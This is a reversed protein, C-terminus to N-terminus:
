WNWWPKKSVSVAHQQVGCWEMDDMRQMVCVFTKTTPDYVPKCIPIADEPLFEKIGNTLRLITTGKDEGDAECQDLIMKFGTDFVEQEELTFARGSKTEPLAMEVEPNSCTKMSVGSPLSKFSPLAMETTTSAEVVKKFLDIVSDAMIVDKGTSGSLPDDTVTMERVAKGTNKNTIFTMGQVMGMQGEVLPVEWSESGLSFEGNTISNKDGIYEPDGCDLLSAPLGMGKVMERRVDEMLVHFQHDKRAVEASGAVFEIWDRDAKMREPTTEITWVFYVPKVPKRPTLAIDVTTVGTAHDTSMGMVTGMPLGGNNMSAKIHRLIVDEPNEKPVSKGIPDGEWLSRPISDFVIMNKSPVPQQIIDKWLNMYDRISRGDHPEEHYEMCLGACPNECGEGAPPDDEDDLDNSLPLTAMVHDRRSGGVQVVNALERDIMDSLMSSKGCRRSSAIVADRTVMDLTYGTALSCQGSEPLVIEDAAGFMAQFEEQSKILRPEKMRDFINPGAMASTLFLGKHQNLVVSEIMKADDNLRDMVMRMFSPRETIEKMSDSLFKGLREIADESTPMSLFLAKGTKQFEEFSTSKVYSHDTETVQIVGSLDVMEDKLTWRSEESLVDFLDEVTVDLHKAVLDLNVFQRQTLDGIETPFASLDDPIEDDPVRMFESYVFESLESGMAPQTLRRSPRSPGRNPDNSDFCDRNTHERSM